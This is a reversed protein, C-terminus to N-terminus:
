REALGRFPGKGERLVEVEDDVIKILTSPESYVIGGDIIISIDRKFTKEILRPDTMVEEGAIRASTNIIPRDLLRVLAVPVPHDPIRIGVEKKDTMLLKPMIRKAKLVFTYPGPLHRKAVNFAFDSMVAYTSIEKFDRCIISLARRSDLRKIAYLKRIAKINFLDCGIGYFTDTPYAVLGGIALTERIIETIKKKPREPDWEIIM